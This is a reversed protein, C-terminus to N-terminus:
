QWEKCDAHPHAAVAHGCEDCEIQELNRLISEMHGYLSDMSVGHPGRCSRVWTLHVDRLNAHAQDVQDMAAKLWELAERYTELNSVKNAM